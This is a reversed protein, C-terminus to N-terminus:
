RQSKVPPADITFRCLVIAVIGASVSSDRAVDEVRNMLGDILLRFERVSDGDVVVQPVFPAQSRVRRKPASAAVKGGMNWAAIWANLRPGWNPQKSETHIIILPDQNTLASELLADFADSDVYDIKTPEFNEPPPEIYPRTATAMCGIVLLCGALFWLAKPMM